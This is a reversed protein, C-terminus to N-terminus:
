GSSMTVMGLRIVASFLAAGAHQSKSARATSFAEFAERAASKSPTLRKIPWGKPAIWRKSQRTMVILIELAAMQTFRYRLAFIPRSNGAKGKPEKAQSSYRRELRITSFRRVFLGACSTIRGRPLMRAFGKRLVTGCTMAHICCAATASMTGLCSRSGATATVMGCFVAM